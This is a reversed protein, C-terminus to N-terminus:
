VCLHINLTPWCVAPNVDMFGYPVKVKKPTTLKQLKKFYKAFLGHLSDLKEANGSLNIIVDDINLGIQEAAAVCFYLIDNEQDANFRNMMVVEKKSLVVDIHEDRIVLHINADKEKSISALIPCLDIIIEGGALIDNLSSPYHSIIRNDSDHGQYNSVPKGNLETGQLEFYSEIAGEEYLSKPILAFGCPEILFIPNSVDILELISAIETGWTNDDVAYPFRYVKLEVLDLLDQSYISHIITSRGIQCVPRNNPVFDKGIRDASVVLAPQTLSLKTNSGTEM